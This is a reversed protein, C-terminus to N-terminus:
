KREWNNDTIKDIYACYEMLCVINCYHRINIHHPKTMYCFMTTNNCDSICENVEQVSFLAVVFLKFFSLFLSQERNGSETNIPWTTKDAKNYTCM